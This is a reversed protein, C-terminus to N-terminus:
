ILNAAGILGADSGLAAAAILPLAVSEGGFCDDRIYRRIKRLLAEGQRAAMGGLVILDPRFINVINIIGEGLYRM